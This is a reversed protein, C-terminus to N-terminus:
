PLLSMSLHAYDLRINLAGGSNQYGIVEVYDNVALNYIVSITQGVDDSPLAAISTSVLVTAANLRLYCQRIGTGNVTWNISACILYKGATKCTLRNNNTVNDHLSNTDFDESDFSVQVGVGSTVSQNVTKIARAKDFGGMKAPTVNTDAIKSTGVQLNYENIFGTLDTTVDAADITTGDSPLAVATYTSQTPM